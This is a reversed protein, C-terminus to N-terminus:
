PEVGGWCILYTKLFQLEDEGIGGGKPMNQTILVSNYILDAQFLVEQESDFNISEPAGYRNVTTSSHCGNCYTSFFGDTWYNWEVENASTCDSSDPHVDGCALFFILM